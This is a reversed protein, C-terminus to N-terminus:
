HQRCQRLRHMEHVTPSMSTSVPKSRMKAKRAAPMAASRSRSTGLVSRKGRTISAASARRRTEIPIRIPSKSDTLLLKSRMPLMDRAKAAAVTAPVARAITRSEHVPHTRLRSVAGGDGVKSGFLLRFSSSGGATKPPFSCTKRSGKRSKKKTAAPKRAANKRGTKPQNRSSYVLM